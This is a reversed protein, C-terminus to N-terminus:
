PKNTIVCAAHAVRFAHANEKSSSEIYAEVPADVRRLMQEAYKFELALSTEARGLRGAITNSPVGADRMAILTKAKEYKIQQGAIAAPALAHWDVSSRRLKEEPWKKRLLLVRERSKWAQIHANPAKPLFVCPQDNEGFWSDAGKDRYVTQPM